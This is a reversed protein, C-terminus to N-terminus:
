KSRKNWAQIQMCYYHNDVLCFHEVWFLEDTGRTRFPYEHCKPCKKMKMAKM